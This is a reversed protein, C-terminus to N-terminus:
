RFGLQPLEAREGQTKLAEDALAGLAADYVMHYTIDKHCIACSPSILLQLADACEYCLVHGCSVAFPKRNQEDSRYHEGCAPCVPVLHSM